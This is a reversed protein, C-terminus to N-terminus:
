LPLRTVRQPPLESPKQDKQIRRQLHGEVVAPNSPLLYAQPIGYDPRKPHLMLDVIATNPYYQVSDSPFSSLDDLM